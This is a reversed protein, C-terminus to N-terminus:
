KTIPFVPAQKPIGVPVYHFGYQSMVQPAFLNRGDIILRNNMLDGVRQLDMGYFEEWETLVVAADAGTVAEYPDAAPIFDLLRRLAEMDAAPDYAIVQGGLEVIRSIIALSPAERVDNTNAKFALGLVAIKKGELGGLCKELKKVVRMHQEHNLRLVERFLSVDVGNAEGLAVIAQTDKPLCSGGFGVGPKLFAPGIRHDLGIGLAVQHINAGVEECLNAITNIYSIKTALFVNAAYKIMEASQWDTFVVPCELPEFLKKLIQKASDTRCGIVMRDPSLFDAIATGQRLFEPTSVVDFRFETDANLYRSVADCTGIPVTSKIAVMMSSRAYEKLAKVVNWLATLNPHGNDGPPTGVAIMILDQEQIGHTFDATFLLRGEQVNRKVLNPLGPEFVPLDGEQIRTVKQLDNEICVVHHGWDAFVAASVLGVYGAGVICIRM